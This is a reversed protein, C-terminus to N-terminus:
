RADDNVNLNTNNIIILYKHATRRRYVWENSTPPSFSILVDVTIFKLINEKRVACACVRPRNAHVRVDFVPWLQEM